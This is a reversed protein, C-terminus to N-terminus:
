FLFQEGIIRDDLAHNPDFLLSAFAQANLSVSIRHIDKFEKFDATANLKRKRPDLNEIEILSSEPLLAGRWRRPRFPSIPTLALLKSGIPLIPGYASFNYATSGVPTAVIIGDGVMKDLHLAGNIKISLNASQMTGRSFTVENYALAKRPEGDEGYMVLELPNIDVRRAAGIRKKLSNPRFKNMLFGVTGCNMGFLTKETGAYRHICELMFGDGGLVVIVEAEEVPVLGVSQALAEFKAATKPDDKHCCAIKM